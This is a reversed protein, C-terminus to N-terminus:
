AEAAEAREIEEAVIRLTADVAPPLSRGARAYVGLESTIRGPARLPVHRLTGDALERELGVRTQFAIGVGRMALRKMLEISGSQLLVQLPRRCHAIVPQMSAHISLEHTALILPHRACDNFTVSAQAALPHDPAMVAGLGFRGVAFQRLAPDRQISFGIALDADADAVARATQASGGSRVTISVSPYREFMRQLVTPLLSSTLGEAAMLTVAGRRVGALGDLEAHMRQEDQLVTIVHRSLIEGAPTLRLGGPLREFLPSGLEAELKLLQRNLASSAVHLRRAAERISGARRITDFYRLLRAHIHM